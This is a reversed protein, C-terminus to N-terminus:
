KFGGDKAALGVIDSLLLEPGAIYGAMGVQELYHKMAALGEKEHPGGRRVFVKVSQRILQDEHVQLAAIVGKFTTRVDTFNAVGGGIILVKHPAQSKLLLSAIQETYLRTEEFNPNGSYEGYNALQEGFGLNFVEDAVVVSAGGGSLLLFISGNPNIVELSFSAQSKDALEQVALEEPTLERSKPQRLDAENWGTEFFTAESDAEAAADLLTLQNGKVILPNIELFGFYNDDFATILAKLSKAPVAIKSAQRGNYTEVIMDKAHDEVDVGGLKSFSLQKGNRLREISLYWEDAADHERYIEVLLYRYGAAFLEKADKMVAKKDRNLKVLGKKFRGKEAQDVKVVYRKDGDLGEVVARWDKGHGDLQWGEYAQGLSDYLLSKARFESLKKRSM